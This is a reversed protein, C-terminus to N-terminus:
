RGIVLRGATVVGIMARPLPFAIIKVAASNPLFLKGSERPLGAKSGRGLNFCHLRCPCRPDPGSAAGDGSGHASSLAACPEGSPRGPEVDDVVGLYISSRPGPMLRIVVGHGFDFNM